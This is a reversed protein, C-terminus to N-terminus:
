FAERKELALDFQARSMGVPRDNLSGTMSKVEVWRVTNGDEDAEYLDFGTNNAATRKLSPESDVIRKIARNEIEM